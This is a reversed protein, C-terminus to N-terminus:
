PGVVHGAQSLQQIARKAGPEEPVPCSSSDLLLSLPFIPNNLLHSALLGLWLLHQPLLHAEQGPWSM